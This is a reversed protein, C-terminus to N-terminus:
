IYDLIKMCETAILKIEDRQISEKFGFGYTVALFDIGAEKAGLFDYESDGILISDKKEGQVYDICKLILDAKTYSDNEDIGYVVDFFEAIGMDEVIERAFQEKKLTAVCIRCGQVKLAKLLDAMGEYLCAENKGRDQYYSRYIKVAEEAKEESLQLEKLFVEKLPAGIVKQVFKDGGFELGIKTITHKYSNFIGQYTNVLTGDMDFIINKYM